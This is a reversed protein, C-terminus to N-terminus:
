HFARIFSDLLCFSRTLLFQLM